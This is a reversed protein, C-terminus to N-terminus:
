CFNGVQTEEGTVYIRSILLLLLYLPNVENLRKM